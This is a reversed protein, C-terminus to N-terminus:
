VPDFYIIGLPDDRRCPEDVPTRPVASASAPQASSCVNRTVLHALVHGLFCHQDEIPKRSVLRGSVPAHIVHGSDIPWSRALLINTRLLSQCKFRRTLSRHDWERERALSVMLM